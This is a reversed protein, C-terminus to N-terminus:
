GCCLEADVGSGSCRKCRRSLFVIFLRKLFVTQRVSAVAVTPMAAPAESTAQEDPGPPEASEPEASSRSFARCVSDDMVTHAKLGLREYFAVSAAVDAVGLTVATIRADM